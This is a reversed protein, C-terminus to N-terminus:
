ESLKWSTTLEDWIYFNHHNEIDNPMPIPPMFACLEENFIWSAFGNKSWYDKIEQQKAIKEESTMTRVHHVDKVVNGDFKYTVGEYIEYTSLVPPEIREFRAVWSPLNNLDVDPFAQQFNDEFIPHEFPKGDKIQIYLNM